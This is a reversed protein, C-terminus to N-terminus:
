SNVLVDIEKNHDEVIAAIGREFSDCPLCTGAADVADIDAMDVEDGNGLRLAALRLAARVSGLEFRAKALHEGLLARAQELDDQFLFFFGHVDNRLIGNWAG